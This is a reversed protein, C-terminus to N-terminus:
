QELVVVKDVKKRMEVTLTDWFSHNVGLASASM